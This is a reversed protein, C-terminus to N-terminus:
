FAFYIFSGAGGAAVVITLAVTAVVVPRLWAPTSVLVSRKEPEYEAFWTLLHLGAALALLAMSLGTFPEGGSMAPLSGRGLMVGLHAAAATLSGSRFIVWGGLVLVFTWLRRAAQKAAELVRSGRSKRRRPMLNTISVLVGHYLGWAVFTLAAGHWIGCLLMSGLTALTPAALVWGSLARVRMLSMSAPLFLYDRIWSSLSMHWRRWFEVIDASLYPWRFNVPFDFGLVLAVGRAINSYGAFDAYIQVAFYLAALWAAAWGFAEQHAFAADVIPAVNDAVVCKQFYGVLMLEIGRITRDRVFPRFSGVQPLFTAARVIPGAVLQPFFSVFFAFELLSKAPACHGRYVDLTYSLSQFTFFSIGIPLRVEPVPLRVGVNLWAALDNTTAVLFRAYKFWGLLGLNVGLSVLLLARRRREDGCASMARVVLFDVLCTFVLILVHPPYAEAYFAFSMVTVFMLRVRGRLMCVGAMVVLLFFAFISSVFNM